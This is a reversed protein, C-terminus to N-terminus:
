SSFITKGLLHDYEHQFVRAALDSYEVILLTPDAGTQGLDPFTGDNFRVRIRLAREVAVQRGPFSLCGEHRVETEPSRWVIEPNIVIGRMWFFWCRPDGLQPAAVALGHNRNLFKSLRYRFKLDTLAPFDAWAVLHAPTRLVPDSEPVLTFPEPTM